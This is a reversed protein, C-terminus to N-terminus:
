RMWRRLVKKSRNPHVVKIYREITISLLNIMSGIIAFVLCPM